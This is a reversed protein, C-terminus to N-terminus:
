CEGCLLAFRTKEGVNGNDEIVCCRETTAM